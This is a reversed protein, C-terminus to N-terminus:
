GIMVGIVQKDFTLFIAMASMTGVFIAPGGFRPMAKTHMHRTDKPIDIAGIKPAIKIAIPTFVFALVFATVFTAWLTSYM